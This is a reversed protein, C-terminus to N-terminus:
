KESEDGTARWLDDGVRRIKRAGRLRHLTSVLTARNISIDRRAFERMLLDLSMLKGQGLIQMVMHGISGPRSSIGSSDETDGESVTSSSAEGAVGEGIIFANKTQRILRLQAELLEAKSVARRLHELETEIQAAKRDLEAIFDEDSGM